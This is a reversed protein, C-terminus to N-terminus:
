WRSGRERRTGAIETWPLVLLSLFLLLSTAAFATCVCAVTVWVYSEDEFNAAPLLHFPVDFMSRRVSVCGCVELIPKLLDAEGMSVGGSTVLVDCRELATKVADELTAEKDRVIGLDIPVGGM